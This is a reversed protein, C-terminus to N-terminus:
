IVIVCVFKKQIKKRITLENDREGHIGKQGPDGPTGKLFYGM